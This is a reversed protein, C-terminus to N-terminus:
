FIRKPIIQQLVCGYSLSNLTQSRIPRYSQLDRGYPYIGDMRQSSPESEAFDILASPLPYHNILHGKELSNFFLVEERAWYELRM